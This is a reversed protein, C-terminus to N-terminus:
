LLKKVQIAAENVAKAVVESGDKVKDASITAKGTTPDVTVDPNSSTWSGDSGKTVTATKPNGAEDTYSVEVSKTSGDTSPTIEVSGDNQAVVTPASPTTPQSVVDVIVEEGAHGTQDIAKAVVQSGSKVKDAPITAKGTTSDVVVEPSSSVWKGNASKTLTVTKPNGSEDIYSVEVSKTSNNVPPTVEVSGDSKSVLNPKSGGSGGGSAAAAIGGIALAGAALWLWNPNSLWFPAALEKGGLAQPAFVQDALLTVADSEIGSQPVYAYYKGNEAMGILLETNDNDYYSEIVLDTKQNIDTGEFAIHLDNGVRKTDIMEPAYQTADDILEYNVNAQAKIVLKKAATNLKITEVTQKGNNIKISINKSM